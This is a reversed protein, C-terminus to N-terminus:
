LDIYKEMYTKWFTSSKEGKPCAFTRLRLFFYKFYPKRFLNWKSDLRWFFEYFSVNQDFFALASHELSLFWLHNRFKKIAIQSISKDIVEYEFLKQILKSHARLCKKSSITSVTGWVLPQSLCFRYAACQVKYM